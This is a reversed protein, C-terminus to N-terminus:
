DIRAYAPVTLFESFEKGLILKDFLEVAETFSYQRTPDVKEIAIKAKKSLKAM